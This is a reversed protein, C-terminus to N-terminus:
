WGRRSGDLRATALQDRAVELKGKLLLNEAKLDALEEFVSNLAKHAQAVTVDPYEGVPQTGCYGVPFGDVFELNM